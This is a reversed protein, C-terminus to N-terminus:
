KLMDILAKQSDKLTSLKDGTLPSSSNLALSYTTYNYLWAKYVKQFAILNNNDLWYISTLINAPTEQYITQETLAQKDKKDFLEATTPLIYSARFSYDIDVFLGEEVLYFGATALETTPTVLDSYTLNDIGLLRYLRRQLGSVDKNNKWTYNTVGDSVKEDLLQTSLNLGQGRTASVVDYDNLLEFQHKIADTNDYPMSFTQGLVALQHNLFQAQRQELNEVASGAITQQLADQKYDDTFLGQSQPIVTTLDQGYYTTTLLKNIAFLSKVQSLQSLYDAMLQQMPALYGQLQIAQAKRLPSSNQPLGVSTIGYTAPLQDNLAQYDAIDMDTGVIEIPTSEQKVIPAPSPIINNETNGSINVKQYTVALYDENFFAQQIESDLTIFASSRQSIAGDTYAILVLDEIAIVGSIGNINTIIDAAYINNTADSRRGAMPTYAVLLEIIAKKVDIKKSGATIIIRAEIGIDQERVAKFKCIFEDITRFKALTTALKTVKKYVRTIRQNVDCFIKKTGSSGLRDKIAAEFIKGNTYRVDIANIQVGLILAEAPIGGDCVQFKVEATYNYSKDEAPRIDNVEVSEISLDARWSPPMKDWYPFILEINFTNAVTFINEQYKDPRIIEMKGIGAYSEYDIPTMYIFRNLAVETFKLYIDYGGAKSAKNIRTYALQENAVKLVLSRWDQNTVPSSFLIKDKPFFDQVDDNPCSALIDEISYSSRYGLDTLTYCFQELLTIGPDSLNYDTWINSALQEILALGQERLVHYDQAIPLNLERPISNM